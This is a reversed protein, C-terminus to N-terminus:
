VKNLYAEVAPFIKPEVQRASILMGKLREIEKPDGTEKCLKFQRVIKYRHKNLVNLEGNKIGCGTIIKFKGSKFYRNKKWKAILGNESLIKNVEEVFDKCIPFESSFTMDDVYLTFKCGNKEAVANIKDFMEKHTWYVILQSSPSGTPVHGNHTTLHTMLAAIDREMLFLNQFMEYVKHHSTSDYFKSIDMTRVYNAGCHSQCNSVYSNGKKGSMLYKPTEIRQLLKNIEVQIRKLDVEPESFYRIGGDAKLKQFERYEYIHEERFYNKDLSLLQALKRRNRLRYLPSKVLSYTKNTM